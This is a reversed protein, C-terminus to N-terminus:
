LDRKSHKREADLSALPDWLWGLRSLSNLSLDPDQGTELRRQGQDRRKAAFCGIKRKTHRGGPDRASRSGSNLSASLQTMDLCKPDRRNGSSKERSSRFVSYSSLPQSIAATELIKQILAFPTEARKQAEITERNPPKRSEQTWPQIGTAICKAPRRTRSLWSFSYLSM